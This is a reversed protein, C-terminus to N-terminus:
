EGLTSRLSPFLLDNGAASLHDTDYYVPLGDLMGRCTERGCLIPLPDWVEINRSYGELRLLGAVAPEIAQDIVSRGIDSGAACYSNEKNFWDSCRYMATPSVPKPAELVIRAGADILPALYEAYVREPDITRDIANPLEGWSDRIRPTYLGPAFVVEGAKVRQRIHEIAARRFAPCGAVTDETYAVLRCGGMTYLQVERGEAALRRYSHEYAGAHSDGVSWIAPLEDACTTPSFIVLEGGAFGTKARAVDCPLGAPSSMPDWISANRTVSLSVTPKTVWLAANTAVVLSLVAVIGGTLQWPRLRRVALSTRLPQEVLLYSLTACTFMLVIALLQLALTDVGVTWRMLVLVGWHWLYLSYSIKGVAALPSWAFIRSFATDGGRWFILVLAATSICPLIAGPFPFGGADTTWLSYGLLLLAILSAAGVFSTSLVRRSIPWGNRFMYFTLFGLGLEWFRTPLMYFAFSPNVRGILAAAALSIVIAGVLTGLAILRARGGFAPKILLLYSFLPFLFYYQEEVALSWTHTFPNFESGTAFYDGARLFLVINSMGFIAALGTPEIFRTAASTPIFLATALAAVVVFVLLAPVIRLVRRRYFHGLYSFFGRAEIASVSKAVVFGSVVFFIDVGVFGGPLYSSNLHFAIVSLVALARLGDIASIYESQRM